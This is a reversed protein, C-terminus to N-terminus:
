MIACVSFKQSYPGEQGGPRGMITVLSVVRGGQRRGAGGYDPSLRLRGPVHSARRGILGLRRSHDQECANRQCDLLLM